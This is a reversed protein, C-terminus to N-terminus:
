FRSNVNRAYEYFLKGGQELTIQRAAILEKLYERLADDGKEVAYYLCSGRIEEGVYEVDADAYQSVDNDHKRQKSNRYCNIIGLPVSLFLTALGAIIAEDLIGNM